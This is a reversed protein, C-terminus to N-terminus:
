NKDLRLRYQLAVRIYPASNDSLVNYEDSSTKGYGTRVKRLISYGAEANLVIRPLLYVDVYPGLQNDDIRMFNVQPPMPYDSSLKYSNTFTRFNAGWAFRKSIRNEYVMYGPLVGFIRESKSITWDLGLLPIFRLGYFENNFYVGFKFQLEPKKQYTFLMAGGAQFGESFQIQPQGNWRPIFAIMASWNTAIKRSYTLWTIFGRLHVQESQEYIKIWRDEWIPNIVFISSDKMVLPINASARFHSFQKPDGGPSTEYVTQVADLYPQAQTSTYLLIALLLLPINKGTM